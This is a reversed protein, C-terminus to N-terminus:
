GVPRSRCTKRLASRPQSRSPRAATRARAASRDLFMPTQHLDLSVDLVEPTVDAHESVAFGSSAFLEVIARSERPVWAEFTKIGSPRADDALLELVRTGVGRGKFGTAVAIAVEARDTADPRLRYGAVVQLHGGVGGVLVRAPEDAKLGLGRLWQGHLRMQDFFTPPLAALDASVAPRLHLTTGDRLVIDATM